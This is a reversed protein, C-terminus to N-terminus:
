NESAGWAALENKGFWIEIMPSLAKRADDSTLEVVGVAAKLSPKMLAALASAQLCATPGYCRLETDRPVDPKAKDAPVVIEDVAQIGKIFQFQQSGDSLQELYARAQPVQTAHLVQAYVKPRPMNKPSFNDCFYARYYGKTVNDMYTKNFGGNNLLRMWDNSADDSRVLILSRGMRPTRMSMNTTYEFSRLRIQDLFTGHVTRSKPASRRVEEAFALATAKRSEEFEDGACYFVDLNLPRPPLLDSEMPSGTLQSDTSEPADSDSLLKATRARGGAVPWAVPTTMLASRARVTARAERNRTTGRGAAESILMGKENKWYSMSTPCGQFCFAPTSLVAGIANPIQKAYQPLDKQWHQSMRVFDAAFAATPARKAAELSLYTLFHESFWDPPTITGDGVTKGSQGAYLIEVNGLDAAKANMGGLWTIYLRNMAEQNPPPADKMRSAVFSDLIPDDRCADVIMLLAKGVVDPGGVNAAIRSLNVATPKKAGPHFPMSFVEYTPHDTLQKLEADPDVWADVGFAYYEGNSQAGHGAYYVVAYPNNDNEMIMQTFAELGSGLEAGTRNCLAAAWVDPDRSGAPSVLPFLHDERWGLELLRQRFAVAENCAELLDPLNGVQKYTANGVIYAYRDPEKTAPEVSPSATVPVPSLSPANACWGRLCLILGLCALLRHARM